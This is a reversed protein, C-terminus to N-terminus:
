QGNERLSSMEFLRRGVSRQFRGVNGLLDVRELIKRASRIRSLDFRSISFLNSFITPGTCSVKRHTVLRTPSPIHASKEALLRRTYM